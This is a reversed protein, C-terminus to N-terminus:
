TATGNDSRGLLTGSERAVVYVEETDDFWTFSYTGNGVRSTTLIKEGSSARHLDITVTGGSSGTIEGSVTKEIQHATFLLNLNHLAAINGGQVLRYKRATSLNLRDSDTDGTWRKFLARVQSYCYRIGVEPDTHSIDQYVTVWETDNDNRGDIAIGTPAGTSNTIYELQTGIATFFTSGTPLTPAIATVNRYVTAPGTSYPALSQLITQNHAGVGATAKGSTYNIIWFGSLNWGHDATDTRYIDFSLTNRGRALTFASDNRCMLANNGAFSAGVTDTYAVFSGTGARANLGAIATISEWFLYFAIQKTTITTPEQIWLERTARQFDASTTGGMPSDIDMPLM